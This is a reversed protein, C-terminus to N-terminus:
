KARDEARPQIEGEKLGLLVAIEHSIGFRCSVKGAIVAQVSAPSFGHLRCWARISLGQRSLREQVVKRREAATSDTLM